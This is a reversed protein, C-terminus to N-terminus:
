ARRNRKIGDDVGSSSEEDSSRSHKGPKRVWNALIGTVHVAGPILEPILKSVAHSLARLLRSPPSVQPTQSLRAVEAAPADAPAAAAPAAAVGTAADAVPTPVVLEETGADAPADPAPAPAPVPATREAARRATRSARAVRGGHSRGGAARQQRPASAARATIVFMVRGGSVHWPAVTFEAGDPLVKALHTYLGLLRAKWDDGMM